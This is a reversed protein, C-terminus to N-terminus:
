DRKPGKLSEAKKMAEFVDIQRSGYLKMIADRIVVSPKGELDIAKWVDDPLTLSISRKTGIKPRGAGDRAGGSNTYGM